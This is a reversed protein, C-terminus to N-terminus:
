LCCKTNNKCAKKKGLLQSLGSKSKLLNFNEKLEKIIKISEKDKVKKSLYEIDQFITKMKVRKLRDIDKLEVGM